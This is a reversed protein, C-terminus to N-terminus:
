IIRAETVILDLQIDHSDIPIENIIQIEFAIGIKLCEPKLLRLFRDYYGAGYGIRNKNADFVVGPVIICDIENPNIIKLKEKKPSYIGYTGIELDQEFDTITAALMSHEQIDSNQVYPVSVSKGMSIAQKIIERTSVEKKFDVYCMIKLGNDFNKLKLITNTIILSKEAVDIDTMSMRKKLIDSRLEEKLRMPM